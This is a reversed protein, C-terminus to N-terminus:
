PAMLRSIPKLGEVHDAVSKVVVLMPVALITGWAGWIWTWLLVGLFVVVVHMRETKGLLPPTILWGEISTIVLAVAAMKVAQAPDGFQVMGVILLGGSVIIPGFYPISNFVGALIAWVAAQQVDMWVLAIWTAVGVIIATVLRVLLFRQIQADIDDVITATVRRELGAGAIEIIRRRFHGGSILLFFVLFFIVTIHGALAFVSGMARQAWDAVPTLVASSTASQDSKQGTTGAADQGDGPGSTGQLAQTAERVAQGTTSQEQSWVLERAKRAVDPLAQVAQTADDRLSYVGWASLGLVVSLVATAGVLRPVGGRAMRAVVPELAYSILVGIVIPILLQSAERMFLLLAITALIWLAAPGGAPHRATM